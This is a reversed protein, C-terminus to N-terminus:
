ESVFYKKGEVNPHSFEVVGGGTATSLFVRAFVSKSYKLGIRLKM